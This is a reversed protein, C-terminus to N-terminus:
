AVQSGPMSAEQLKGGVVEARSSWGRTIYAWDSRRCRMIMPDRTVEAQSRRSGVPDEM